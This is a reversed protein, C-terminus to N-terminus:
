KVGGHTLGGVLWRGMFVAAIYVPAMATLSAAAMQGFQVGRDGQFLSIAVPLTQSETQQTVTVAFLFENYNLIIIIIGTAVLGPMLLPLVVHWLTRFIGAGDVQAAEEVEHPLREVFSYILWTAVSVNVLGYILALGLSSNLLGLGRLLFFLPIVAVVPPAIFASLIFGPLLDGGTRFRASAYAVPTAILLTLLCGLVAAVISNTGYTLMPMREWYAPWNDLTLRSPFLDADLVESQPTLSLSLLYAIPLIATGVVVVVLLWRGLRGLDFRRARAATPAATEHMASMLM